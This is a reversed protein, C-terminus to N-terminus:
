SLTTPQLRRTRTGRLDTFGVRDTNNSNLQKSASTCTGPRTPPARRTLPM